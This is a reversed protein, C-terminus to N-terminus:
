EPRSFVFTRVYNLHVCTQTCLLSYCYVPTEPYMHHVYHVCVCTCTVHTDRVQWMGGSLSSGGADEGLHALGQEEQFWHRVARPHKARVFAGRWEAPVHHVGHMVYVHTCM